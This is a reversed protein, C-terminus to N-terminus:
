AGWKLDLSIREGTPLALVPCEAAGTVGKDGVELTCPKETLSYKTETRQVPDLITVSAIGRKTKTPDDSPPIPEITMRKQGSYTGVSAVELMLVRGDDLKIAEPTTISVVSTEMQSKVGERALFRVKAEKKVDLSLAGSIDVDVMTVRTEDILPQKAASDPEEEAAGGGDGGCGAFLTLACM